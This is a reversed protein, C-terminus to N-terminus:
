FYFWYKHNVGINKGIKKVYCYFNLVSFYWTSALAKRMFCFWTLYSVAKKHYAPGFYASTKREKKKFPQKQVRAFQLNSSKATSKFKGTEIMTEVIARSKISTLFFFWRIWPGCCRGSTLGHEFQPDFKFARASLRCCLQKNKGRFGPKALWRLKRKVSAGSSENSQECESSTHTLQEAVCNNAKGEFDTKCAM